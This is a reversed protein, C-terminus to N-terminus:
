FIKYELSNPKGVKKSEAKNDTLQGGLDSSCYRRGNKGALSGKTVLFM